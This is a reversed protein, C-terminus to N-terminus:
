VAAEGWRSPSSFHVFPLVQQNLYLCNSLVFSISSSISSGTIIIIFICFLSYIIKEGGLSQNVTLGWATVMSGLFQLNQSNQSVGWFSWVGLCTWVGLCSFIWIWLLSFGWGIGMWLSLIVDITLLIEMPWSPSAAQSHERGAGACRSM